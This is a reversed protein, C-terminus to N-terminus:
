GSLKHTATALCLKLHPLILMILTAFCLKIIYEDKLLICPKTLCMHLNVIALIFNHMMQNLLEPQQVLLNNM